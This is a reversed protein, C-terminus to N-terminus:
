GPGSDTQIQGPGAGAFQAGLPSCARRHRCLPQEQTGGPDTAVNGIKERLPDIPPNTVQAFMQRFYDYLPRIRHSLGAIPADDGMSGIAEVESEALVRLVETREETTINFLKEFSALKVPELPKAALRPDFLAQDMYRVGEKLWRRFPARRKLLDDIELGDLVQGSQLDIALVDGPGLKGKRVVEAALEDGVGAESCITLRGARTQWYRAPRLGNRDLACVAHRGDNLVVGAPGDWPEMHLGYYEYFANIDPDQTERAEWAPPMLIRIAQLIDMGGAVLAELMNDLCSSDSGTPEVMPLLDSWEPFDPPQLQPGRALAWNRNGRLTNIEGNHALLRFPQALWWEPLTNTSFRQHFFVVNSALDPHRLDPYFADLHQPMVMGKYLLNSASLSTVYFTDDNPYIAKEARRRALFLRRTFTVDGLGSPANVFVQQIEPMAALAMPGCVTADIPVQRWGALELGAREVETEFLHKSRTALQEDTDLFVTGAAFLTRLAIGAEVAVSRLFADPQGISLGCGDGTKGDASVAGRHTLRKLAELGDTVLQRSARGNLDVMLGFGCGDHEFEPRYLGNKPCDKM